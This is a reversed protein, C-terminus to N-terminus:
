RARWSTIRERVMRLAEEVLQKWSTITHVENSEVVDFSSSHHSKSSHIDNQDGSRGDSGDSGDGGGRGGEDAEGVVSSLNFRLLKEVLAMSHQSALLAYKSMGTSQLMMARIHDQCIISTFPWLSGFKLISSHLDPYNWYNIAVSSETSEVLHWWYLPIFLADGPHINCTLPKASPPMPSFLPNLSAAHNGGESKKIMEIHHLPDYLIARKKGFMTILLGHHADFHLHSTHSSNGMWLRGNEVMPHPMTGRTQVQKGNSSSSSSSSQSSTMLKSQRITEFPNEGIQEIWTESLKNLHVNGLFVDSLHSLHPEYLHISEQENNQLSIGSIIASCDVSESNENKGIEKLRRREWETLFHHFSVNELVKDPFNGPLAHCFL